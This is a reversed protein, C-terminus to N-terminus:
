IVIIHFNTYSVSMSPDAHSCVFSRSLLFSIFHHFWVKLVQKLGYIVKKLKCDHGSFDLHVFEPSQKM